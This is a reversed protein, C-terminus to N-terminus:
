PKKLAKVTLPPEAEPADPEGPDPLNQFSELTPIQSVNTLPPVGLAAAQGDYLIEGDKGVIVGPFSDALAQADAPKRGPVDRLTVM